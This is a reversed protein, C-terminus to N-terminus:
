ASPRSKAPVYVYDIHFAKERDRHMFLTSHTEHGQLCGEINHYLSTLGLSELHSNNSSHNIVPYKRDWAANSNFDGLVIPQGSRIVEGNVELFEALQHVYNRKQASDRKAWVAVLKLNGMVQVPLFFKTSGVEWDLRLLQRDAPVFVGLGKNCNEGTWVFRWGAKEYTRRSVETDECEQIVLVDQEAPSFLGIKDRFRCNANWTVLRM